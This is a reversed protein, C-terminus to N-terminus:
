HDRAILPSGPHDNEFRLNKQSPLNIITPKIQTPVVMCCVQRWESIYKTRTYNFYPRSQSFNLTSISKRSTRSVGASRSSVKMGFPCSTLVVMGTEGSMTTTSQDVFHVFCKRGFSVYFYTSVRINL